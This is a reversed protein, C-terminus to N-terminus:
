PRMCASFSVVRKGFLTLIENQLRLDVCAVCAFWVVM